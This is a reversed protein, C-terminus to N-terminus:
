DTLCTPLISGHLLYYSCTGVGGLGSATGPLASLFLFSVSGSDILAGLVM